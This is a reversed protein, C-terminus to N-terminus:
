DMFLTRVLTAVGAICILIGLGSRFVRASIYPHLWLGLPMGLVIGAMGVGAYGLHIESVAGVAGLVILRFVSNGASIVASRGRFVAPDDSCSHLQFFVVPGSMGFLGGLVGGACGVFFAWRGADARVRMPKTILAIGALVVAGGLVPALFNVDFKNTGLAWVFGMGVLLTGFLLQLSIADVILKRRLLVLMLIGATADLLAFVVLADVFQLPALVYLPTAALCANLTIGSGAGSLGKILYALTAALGFFLAVAPFEPM